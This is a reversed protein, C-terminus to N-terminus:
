DTVVPRVGVAVDDCDTVAECLEETEDLRDCDKVPECDMEDLAVLETDPVREVDPVALAVPDELLEGDFDDLPVRETDPM